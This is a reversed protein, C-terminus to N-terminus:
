KKNQRLPKCNVYVSYAISCISYFIAILIVNFYFISSTTLVPESMPTEKVYSLPHYSCYIIVMAALLMNFVSFFKPLFPKKFKLM